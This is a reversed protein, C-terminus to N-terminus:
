GGGWAPQGAVPIDPGQSSHQCSSLTVPSPDSGTARNIDGWFLVPIARGRKRKWWEKLCLKGRRSKEGAKGSMGQTASLEPCGIFATASRLYLVGYRGLRPFTVCTGPTSHIGSLLGAAM